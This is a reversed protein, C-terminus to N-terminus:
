YKKKLHLQSGVNKMETRSLFSMGLLVAPMEKDSYCAPVNTMNIDGLSVKEAQVCTMSLTGNATAAGVTNGQLKNLGLRRADSIGMAITTAGTDVMFRVPQENISGNAIYHGQPNAYLTATEEGSSATLARQGIGVRQKGGQSELIVHDNSVELLRYSGSVTDGASLLRQTGDVQFMARKGMIGVVTVTAASALSTWAALIVSLAIRRM